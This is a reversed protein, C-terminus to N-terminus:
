ELKKKKKEKEDSKRSPGGFLKKTFTKHYTILFDHSWSRVWEKSVRFHRETFMTGFTTIEGRTHCMVCSICPLWCEFCGFFCLFCDALFESVTIRRTLTKPRVASLEKSPIKFSTTPFRTVLIQSIGQVCLFYKRLYREWLKYEHLTHCM